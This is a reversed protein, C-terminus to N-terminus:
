IKPGGYKAKKDSLFTWKEFFVWLLLPCYPWGSAEAELSVENELIAAVSSPFFVFFELRLFVRVSLVREGGVSVDRREGDCERSIYTHGRLILHKGLKYGARDDQENGTEILLIYVTKTIM